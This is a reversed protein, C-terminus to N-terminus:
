IIVNAASNIHGSDECRGRQNQQMTSTPEPARQGSSDCGTSGHEPDHRIDNTTTCDHQRSSRQSPGHRLIPDVSDSVDFNLKRAVHVYTNANKFLGMFSFNQVFRDAHVDSTRRGQAVLSWAHFM